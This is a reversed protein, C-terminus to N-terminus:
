GMTGVVPIGCRRCCQVFKETSRSGFWRGVARFRDTGGAPTSVAIELFRWLPAWRVRQVEDWAVFQEGGPRRLVLGGAVVRIQRVVLRRILLFIVLLYGLCVITVPVALSLPGGSARFGVFLFFAIGPLLILWEYTPMATVRKGM